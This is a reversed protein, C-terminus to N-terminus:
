KHTILLGNAEPACKIIKMRGVLQCHFIKRIKILQSMSQNINWREKWLADVVSLNPYLRRSLMKSVAVFMLVFVVFTSVSM